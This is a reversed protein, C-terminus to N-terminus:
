HGHKVYVNACMAITSHRFRDSTQTFDLM